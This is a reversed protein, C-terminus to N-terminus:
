AATERGRVEVAVRDDFPVARSGVLVEPITGDPAVVLGALPGRDRGGVRVPAGRLARLTTARRRYWALDREEFLVLASAIAIEDDRVTAAALPLYRLAEDGCVVELGIVRRRELDVVVDVPRGLAIGNLRV